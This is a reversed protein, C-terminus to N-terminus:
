GQGAQGTPAHHSGVAAVACLSRDLTPLALLELVESAQLPSPPGLNRYIARQMLICLLLRFPAM